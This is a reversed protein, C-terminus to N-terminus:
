EDIACILRIESPMKTKLSWPPVPAANWIILWPRSEDSSKRSAPQTSSRKPLPRNSRTPASARPRGASAVIQMVVPM